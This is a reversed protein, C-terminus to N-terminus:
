ADEASSAAPSTVDLVAAILERLRAPKLEEPLELTAGGPLNLRAAQSTSRLEVTIFAGANQKRSQLRELKRRWQYFSATSVGEVECFEAVTLQSQEFRQLRVRWLAVLESDALRSMPKEKFDM